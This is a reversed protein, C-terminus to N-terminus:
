VTVEMLTVHTRTRSTYTSDYDLQTRNIYVTSAGDGTGVYFKYDVASTTAPSDVITGAYNRSRNSDMGSDATSQYNGFLSAQKNSSATGSLGTVHSYGGSAIQRYLRIRVGGGLTHSLQPITFNIIIKSSASTPTISYAISGAVDTSADPISVAYLTADSSQVVQLVKGAGSLKTGAIAASANIDANVITGDTIGLSQIRTLPM